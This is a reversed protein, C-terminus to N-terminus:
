KGVCFRGFIHALLQDTTRRGTVEELARRASVLDTLDLEETAGATLAAEARSIHDRAGDVLALHRVNSIAPPDRLEERDVLAAV